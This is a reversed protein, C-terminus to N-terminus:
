VVALASAGTDTAVETGAEAGGQAGFRWRLRVGGAPTPELAPIASLLQRTYDQRPADFVADRPGQEVCRGLYMVMVDDAVHRVVGLDHSIFVYAVDLAQQLDDLLNLVQARISVDLASVPEDAVIINPELALARAIGIRQRQGGSFEHPYRGMMEDSLGVSRMLTRAREEREARNGLRHIVLPERVIDGATMRPNLSSYPDQFIMQLHRRLAFLEKADASAMDKGELLVRGSTPEELRMMARALTSKGCGSEGVIALTEGRRLTFSVGDVAKVQGTVRSFISGRLPYHKRLDEVQMAPGDPTQSM